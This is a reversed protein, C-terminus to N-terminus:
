VWQQCEDITRETRTNRNNSREEEQWANILDSPSAQDLQCTTEVENVLSNPSLALALASQHLKWSAHVDERQTVVLRPVVVAM